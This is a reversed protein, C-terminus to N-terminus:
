EIIALGNVVDVKTGERLNINAGCGEITTNEAISFSSINTNSFRLIMGGQASLFADAEIDEGMKIGKSVSVM